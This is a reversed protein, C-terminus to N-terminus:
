ARKPHVASVADRENAAWERRPKRAFLLYFPVACLARFRIIKRCHIFWGIVAALLLCEGGIALFLAPWATAGFPIAVLAAALALLWLITLRAMPPIALDLAIGLVDPRAQVIGRYLLRPVQTLLIRLHGHEGRTPQAGTREPRHPLPSEVRAHPVLLPPHGAVTLDLGLQLDEVLKDDSLRLKDTLNWPLAMGTGTLYCSGTLRSIGLARILNKFRSALGAITQPAGGRPDPDRVNLGQAPRRMTVAATGLMRVTDPQVQCDADLFIVADPSDAQLHKLGFDVAYGKGRRAPERREIVEAGAQRAILATNDTCNDAVVLVRDKGGLTPILTKLTRGLVLQENHAPILVVFRLRTLPEVRTTEAWPLISL